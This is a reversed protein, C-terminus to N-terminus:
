RLSAAPELSSPRAPLPVTEYRIPGATPLQKLYAIPDNPDLLQNEFLPVPLLRQGNASPEAPFDASAQAFLDPRQVRDLVDRWNEPFASIGWRALQTLIWLGDRSSPANVQAGFFQNFEPILEPTGTGRDYPDVLGPLLTDLETGVYERRSLLAAVEPRNDPDQCYQCAALLAKILAQHTRPHAAAWDERVGLVKECHGPWLDADTAIVTGLQQQVARTNWPEGVCFGDISGAKLTAVMQPPPIVILSVDRDPDIGGSALWARMILNHMSAPHVMALVPKRQPHAVIWAKFDALSRVGAEHFRRHLTIANGNRTLTLATVMPLPSTGKSGLTIALPMGAVMQGGDIVGQRLDAELTKWNTERRLSVQDLGYRAFFGKEHAVVLPACDTLPIFGLTVNIKELDNAAIAASPNLRQKRAEKQQTLFQVVEGRLSYYRPDKVVTLHTRPRPLPVDLIQGIYAEPGNTMLVVRDSLLLAEDVDHTVMVTTVQAEECIRMLQEQLNGRTLADLAGFPEDLLLLKPRLALARAIAVRQKMGGSIEHPFKEAAATLGVLKINYDIISEREERSSVRMVNHVALAINQRVSKWPLLSYNQFVVMRDPGPETVERGNMLIGGESARTLGALLNLLTSKGCGSHGVLSLFEGDAVNLFIDKLAVYTGGDKLPFAQTVNDVTFLAPM